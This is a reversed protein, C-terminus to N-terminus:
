QFFDRITNFEEPLLGLILPFKDLMVGALLSDTVLGTGYLKVITALVASILLAGIVFGLVAGVLHDVWGLMVFKIISKLLRAAIAAIVMVVILILAFAVINAIAANPIFTLVGGLSEYFNSALVIGVILGVLSFAMKILGMKLGIFIPAILAVIIVIDLWNM